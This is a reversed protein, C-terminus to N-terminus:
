VLKKKIGSTPYLTFVSITGTSDYESSFASDPTQHTEIMLQSVSIDATDALEYEFRFDPQLIRIEKGSSASDYAVKLATDYRNFNAALTDDGVVVKYYGEQVTDWSKVQGLAHFVWFFMAIFFVLLAWLYKEFPDINKYDTRM